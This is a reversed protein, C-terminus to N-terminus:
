KTVDHSVHTTESLPDNFGSRDNDYAGLRFLTNLLHVIQGEQAQDKNYACATLALDNLGTARLHNSLWM